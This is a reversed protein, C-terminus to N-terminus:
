KKIKNKCNVHILTAHGEKTFAEYVKTNMTIKKNCIYCIM